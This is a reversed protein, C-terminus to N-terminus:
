VTILQLVLASMWLNIHDDTRLDRCHPPVFAKGVISYGDGHWRLVIHVTDKQASPCEISPIDIACILDNLSANHPVLGQPHELFHTTQRFFHTRVSLGVFDVRFVQLGSTNCNDNKLIMRQLSTKTMNSSQGKAVNAAHRSPFDHDPRLCVKVYSVSSKIPQVLDIESQLEEYLNENKFRLRRRLEEIASTTVHQLWSQSNPAPHGIVGNPWASDLREISGVLHGTTHFLKTSEM